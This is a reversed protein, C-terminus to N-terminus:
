RKPHVFIFYIHSPNIKTPASFCVKRMHDDTKVMEAFYDEPRTTPVDLEQLKHHGMEVASLAQQYSSPSLSIPPLTLHSTHTHTHVYLWMERKFDDNPDLEKEEREGDGGEEEGQKGVEGPSVVRCTVAM